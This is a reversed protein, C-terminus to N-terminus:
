KQWKFFEEFIIFFMKLEMEIFEQFFTEKEVFKLFLHPILFIYRKKSMM